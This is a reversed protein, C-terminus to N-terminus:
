KLRAYWLIFEEEKMSNFVNMSTIYSDPDRKENGNTPIERISVNFGMRLARIGNDLALKFGAGIAEGDKPLDSDPIICLKTNLGRLEKLQNETWRGGLSAVTNTIGLCQMHIADGVGEVLHIKEEKRATQVANDIGFVSNDKNYVLSSASNIYKRGKEEHEDMTRATFGVVQNYRNRIPIMVRNRYLSFVSGNKDSKMLVKMELLIDLDLGKQTAWMVLANWSDPAYGIGYEKCHEEGWRSVAYGKAAKAEPTDAEMQQQFWDCVLKNYILMSQRRKEKEIDEPTRNIEADEINVHLYDHLLQKVAKPFPLGTAKMYFDIVNGGDQCAGYCRWKGRDPMVCFSPTKENHFPCCAWLKNGRRKLEVYNSVVDEIDIRELIMDIYKRDIM